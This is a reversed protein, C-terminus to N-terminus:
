LFGHASIDSRSFRIVHRVTRDIRGITRLPGRRHSRDPLSDVTFGHAPESACARSSHHTSTSIVPSGPEDAGVGIAARVLRKRRTASSDTAIDTKVVARPLQTGPGPLPSVVIGVPRVITHGHGFPTRVIELLVTVRDDVSDEARGVAGCHAVRQAFEHRLVEGFAHKLSVARRDSRDAVHVVPM